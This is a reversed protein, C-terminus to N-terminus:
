VTEFVVGQKNLRLLETYFVSIQTNLYTSGNWHLGSPFISCLLMRKQQLTSEEFTRTVNDLKSKVFLTIAELNYKQIMDDNKTIQLIKIKDQVIQNQEKFIDDSYVGSINKEILSQRFEYLKKLEIDAVDRRKQLSSLREYYKRRLWANFLDVSKDHLKVSDLTKTTEEDIKAKSTNLDKCKNLCFYFPYHKKKGKCWGGTMSAGCKTCKVIRRLPFDPNDVNRRTLPSAIQTNRGDLISQVKYFQEETVMAPHQGQVELEYKKSVIKGTYFKNRFIANMTQPRLIHDKKNNRRGGKMGQKILIDTIGRLSKTGTAMLDWAKKMQDFIEPDKIAYGNQNLYGM